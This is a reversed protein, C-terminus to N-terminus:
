QRKSGDRAARGPCLERENRRIGPLEESLCPHSAQRQITRVVSEKDLAVVLQSRERIHM